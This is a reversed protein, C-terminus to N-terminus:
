DEEIHIVAGAIDDSTGKGIKQYEKIQKIMRRKLFEGTSSKFNMFAIVADKWDVQDIQCIGDTFIAIYEIEDLDKRDLIIPSWFEQYKVLSTETKIEDSFTNEKMNYETQTSIIKAEDINGNHIIKIYNKIDEESYIPYLPANKTWEYKTMTITKDKFQVALIGDGQVNIIGGFKNICISLCTAVMDSNNIELTDQLRILKEEQPSKLNYTQFDRYISYTLINLTILSIIRAGIDTNGGTSCGDSVIGCVNEQNNQSIAYDQCPKGSIYHQYGIQFYHDTTFKM